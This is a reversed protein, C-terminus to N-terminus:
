KNELLVSRSIEDFVDSVRLIGVVEDGDTVLASITQWIIIKHIAENIPENVDVHESFPRMVDKIKISHARRIIDKMDSKWLQFSDMMSTIFSKSVGATYIGDLNGIDGYKPELAKLFGLHGLKGIIKFNKDAILVARHRQRGVPLNRQSKDLAVFSDYLTAHESVVAYEDIPFMLDKVIKTEM